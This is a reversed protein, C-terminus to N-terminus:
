SNQYVIAMKNLTLTIYMGGEPEVATLGSKSCTGFGDLREYSRYKCTESAGNMGICMSVNIYMYIFMAM